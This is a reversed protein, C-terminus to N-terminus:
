PVGLLFPSCNSTMPMTHNCLQALAQKLQHPTAQRNSCCEQQEQSSPSGNNNINAVNFVTINTLRL